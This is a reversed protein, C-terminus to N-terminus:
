CRRLMERPTRCQIGLHLREENYYALYTLVKGQLDLDVPSTSGTCEEQITRNFREVFANDNPKRVRSHRVASGNTRLMNEFESTYEPGNDAQVMRFPFGAYAQGRALVQAALRASLQKHHEAYAWRSYVDVLTYLYTRQKTAHDYLHVTDTQVLDGPKTAPPREVPPHWQKHYRKRVVFGLRRLIRRVTALSVQTGERKCYAHVITACRGYRRRYYRIRDVVAESVAHKCSHPRSSNTPIRWTCAALRWRSV